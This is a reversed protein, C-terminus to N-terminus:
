QAMLSAGSTRQVGILTKISTEDSFFTKVLLNEDLLYSTKESFLFVGNRERKRATKSSLLTKEGVSIMLCPTPSACLKIGKHARNEQM